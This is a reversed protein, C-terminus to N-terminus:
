SKDLALLGLLAPLYLISGYFLRRARVESIGAMFHAALGSFGLGLVLAGALYIWGAMGWFAPMVSVGALLLACGLAHRATRHGIPDFAPLMAYGARAYEDRYLWAIALFHPIQWLALIGFLLWGGGELGGRAAVWGMLPPLAGPVAGVATNLWTVRKLPTYVFLYVVLTVAGLGAVIPSVLVTLYGLGALAGTAGAWLVTEPRLRGSPLPRDETRPMKADHERELWQNLAAAGSAVLGTGLLLHFLGAWDMAGPLGVYFGVGATMLVLFTLRAKILECWVSVMGKDIEIPAGVPQALAKMGNM